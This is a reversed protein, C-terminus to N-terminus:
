LKLGNEASDLLTSIDKDLEVKQKIQKKVENILNDSASPEATENRKVKHLRSLRFDDLEKNSENRLADEVHKTYPKKKHAHKKQSKNSNTKTIKGM